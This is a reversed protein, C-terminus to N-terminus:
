DIERAWRSFERSFSRVQPGETTCKSRDPGRSFTKEKGAGKRLPGVHHSRRHLLQYMKLFGRAPKPALKALLVQILFGSSVLIRSHCKPDSEFRPRHWIPPKKDTFNWTVCYFTGLPKRAGEKKETCRAYADGSVFCM